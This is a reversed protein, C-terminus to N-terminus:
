LSIVSVDLGLGLFFLAYVLFVTVNEIERIKNGRTSFFVGSLGM